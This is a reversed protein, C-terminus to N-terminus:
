KLWEVKNVMRVLRIPDPALGTTANVLQSHFKCWRRWDNRVSAAMAQAAKCLWKRDRTELDDGIAARAAAGSGLHINATERGM